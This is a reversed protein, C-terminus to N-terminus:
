AINAEHSRLMQELDSRLGADRLRPMMECLKRVVWRQGRNIFTVRADLEAIAAAKDYFAGVKPSPAANLSRLHGLLMACWHAEDQQIDRLLAGVPTDGALQASELTIRAGAREAELLENLFAVLEDRGVYGMYSDDAEHMLCAPSSPEPTPEDDTPATM